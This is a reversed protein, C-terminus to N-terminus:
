LMICRYFVAYQLYIAQYIKVFQICANCAIGALLLM